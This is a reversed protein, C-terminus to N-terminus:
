SHVEEFPALTLFKQNLLDFLPRVKAFKDTQDLNSNDCCHLHTMIYTFRDRSIPEAVLPNNTDSCNEWYM